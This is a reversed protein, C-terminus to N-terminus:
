AGVLVVARDGERLFVPGPPGMSEVPAALDIDRDFGPDLVRRNDRDAGLKASVRPM